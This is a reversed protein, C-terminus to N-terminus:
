LTPFLWPHSAPRGCATTPFHRNRVRPTARLGPRPGHGAPSMRCPKELSTVSPSQWSCPHRPPSSPRGCVSSRSLGGPRAALVHLPATAGLPRPPGLAARRGLAEGLEAWASPGRARCSRLVADSRVSSRGPSELTLAWRPPARPSCTEVESNKSIGPDPGQPKPRSVLRESFGTESM